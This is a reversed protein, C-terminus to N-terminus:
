VALGLLNAREPQLCFLNDMQTASAKNQFPVLRGVLHRSNELVYLLYGHQKLFRLVQQDQDNPNYEVILDPKNTEILKAAGKLVNAEYGEVDILIISAQGVDSEQALHDLTDMPLALIDANEQSTIHTAGSNEADLKISVEQQKDGLALAFATINDYGSLEVNDRLLRFMPPNPEFSFVKAAGVSAAYISMLGNHAGVDVFCQRGGPADLLQKIVNLTGAEYTGMFYLNREISGQMTPSHTIDIDIIMPFGYSTPIKLRGGVEPLLHKGIEHQIKIAVAPDFPHKLIQSNLERMLKFREDKTFDVIPKTM